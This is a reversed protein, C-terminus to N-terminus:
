SPLLEVVAYEKATASVIAVSPWDKAPPVFSVNKTEGSTIDLTRLRLTRSHSTNSIQLMAPEDCAIALRTHEELNLLSKGGPPISLKPQLAGWVDQIREGRPAAPTPQTREITQKELQETLFEPLTDYGITRYFPTPIQRVEGGFRTSIRTPVDRMEMGVETLEERSLARKPAPAPTAPAAAVNRARAQSAIKLACWASPNILEVNM